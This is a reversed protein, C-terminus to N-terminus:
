ATADVNTSPSRSAFLETFARAAAGTDAVSFLGTIVALADAGAELLQSANDPTIGGIAVLPLDWRRRAERLLELSPRVALPKITSPFFSGFALYDAGDNVSRQALGLDDYCSAGILARGGLRLRADAIPADARGLHVGDAGLEGALEIDDNVIFATGHRRCLDILDTALRARQRRDPHKSRFQLVRTGGMIAQEVREVLWLLDGTEPTVAYLGCIRQNSRSM